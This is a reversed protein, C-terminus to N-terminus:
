LMCTVKSCDWYLLNLHIKMPKTQGPKIMLSGDSPLRSNGPDRAIALYKGAGLEVSAHGKADTTLTIRSKGAPWEEVTGMPRIFVKSDPCPSDDLTVVITVQVKSPTQAILSFAPFSMLFPLSLALRAWSPRILQSM